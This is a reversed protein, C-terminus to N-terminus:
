RLAPKRCLQLIATTDMRRVDPLCNSGSVEESFKPSEEGSISLLGRRARMLGYGTVYGNKFWYSCSFTPNHQNTYIHAYARRGSGPHTPPDIEGYLM